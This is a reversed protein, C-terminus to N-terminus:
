ADGSIKRGHSKGARSLVEFGAGAFLARAAATGACDAGPRVLGELSEPCDLSQLWELGSRRSAAVPM